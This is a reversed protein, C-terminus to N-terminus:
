PAAPAAVVVPAEVVGEPEDAVLLEATKFSALQPLVTEVAAAAAQPKASVTAVTPAAKAKRDMAWKAPVAGLLALSSATCLAVVTVHAVRKALSPNTSAVQTM